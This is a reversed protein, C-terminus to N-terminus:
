YSNRMISVDSYTRTTTGTKTSYTIDINFKVAESVGTLIDKLYFRTVTIDTPSLYQLAGSNEQYSIRGSTLAYRKVINSSNVLANLSLTGSSTAFATNTTDISQGTRIDREIRDALTTGVQDVRSGITANRYWNYTTFLLTLMAGLLLILGAAYIITELLTFGKNKIIISM